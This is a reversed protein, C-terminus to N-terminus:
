VNTAINLLVIYETYNHLLNALILTHFISNQTMSSLEIVLNYFNYRYINLLLTSCFEIISGVTLINKSLLIKINPKMCWSYAYRRLRLAYNWYNAKSIDTNKNM